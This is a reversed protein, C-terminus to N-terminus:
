ALGAASEAEIRCSWGKELDSAFLSRVFTKQQGVNKEYNPHQEFGLILRFM